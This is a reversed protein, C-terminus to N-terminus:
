MRYEFEVGFHRPRNVSGAAFLTAIPIFTEFRENTLNRGYASIAWQETYYGVSATVDDRAKVRGLPTNLLNTEIDDVWAYKAFIEFSGAGVPVSFTGGIGLTNEPANRPKLFSADEIITVGDAANIDTEFNDYEADLYGYNLFGRLYDNFVYEIEVEVGQYTADAVNDFVTAVTLTSPDFQISQEQKDTFENRFLAVNFRMRNDFLTSKFGIEYTEAFEPDYQDREFDATNQNVGFFGGSHFGESYSVYAIANDNVQYTIGFRPSVERWTNDLDAFEPFNRERQRAVNSLYAQGAIFDKREETWRLGATATWRDAFNWDAQFFAAISTTEQTEFLVQTVTEGLPIGNPIGRDCWINTGPLQNQCLGWLFPDAAVAGFLTGWFAGGTVWDQEFESRWYYVGSTLSVKDWTGDIRFEQSFQDYENWREITIFPAASADFDYIRYEDMDRYGTVSVLKMNENLDFSMNLTYADVELKSDNDTDGESSSPRDLSTRCVSPNILCNLFGGSYNSENPDTPPPIVGPAANYNTHFASLRGEDKFREVTFLAEFGDTPTALFTVGYNQYDADAVDNGTTDNSMFGDDQQLTLFGKVALKDQIIPANVVARLERQSDEGLTVKFRGGLEGTPRSRIVHVVGGVTNKGFLTGQPGRLIEIRELDFNELVQGALSGLYIGDIMVGIPSDFSNDDTRTPSIGRINISAGGGSRSGDEGIQVNPAYGNLDTLNRITPSELERALATIAIPVSQASEETKRATVIVEEITRRASSESAPQAYATSAMLVGGLVGAISM